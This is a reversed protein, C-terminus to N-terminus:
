FLILCPTTDQTVCAPALPYISTPNMKRRNNSQKWSNRPPLLIPLPQRCQNPPLRNRLSEQHQMENLIRITTSCYLPRLAASIEFISPSIFKPLIQFFADRRSVWKDCIYPRGYQMWTAVARFNWWWGRCTQNRSGKNRIFIGRLFLCRLHTHDAAAATRTTEISRSCRTNAVNKKSLNFVNGVCNQKWNAALHFKLPVSTLFNNIEIFSSSSGNKLLLSRGVGLSGEWRRRPPTRPSSCPSSRNISPIIVTSSTTSIPRM